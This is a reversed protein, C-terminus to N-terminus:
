GELIGLEKELKMTWFRMAAKGPESLVSFMEDLGIGDVCKTMSLYKPYIATTGLLREANEGNLLYCDIETVTKNIVSLGLRLGYGDMYLRGPWPSVNVTYGYEELRGICEDINM